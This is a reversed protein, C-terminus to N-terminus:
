GDLNRWVACRSTNKWTTGLETNIDGVSIEGTPTTLISLGYKLLKGM